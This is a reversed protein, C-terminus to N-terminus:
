NRLLDIINQLNLHPLGYAFIRLYSHRGFIENVADCPDFIDRFYPKYNPSKEVDFEVNKIKLGAIGISAAHGLACSPIMTTDDYKFYSDHDYDEPKVNKELHDALQLRHAKQEEETFSNM